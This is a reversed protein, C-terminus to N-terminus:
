RMEYVKGGVTVREARMEHQRRTSPYGEVSVEQGPALMAETLGRRQMRSIPALTVEWTANEYKLMVHAHPNQWAIMEIPAEITLKKTSDYSGWGHHASAAVTAAVVFLGAATAQRLM